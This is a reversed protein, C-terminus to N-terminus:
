LPPPTHHCGQVACHLAQQKPLLLCRPRCHHALQLAHWGHMDTVTAVLCTALDTRKGDCSVRRFLTGLIGDISLPM